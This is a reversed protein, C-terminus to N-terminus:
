IKAQKSPIEDVLDAIMPPEQFGAAFWLRKSNNPEQSNLTRNIPAPASFPIISLDRRQCSEAILTVLEFKSLQDKPYLHMTGPWFMSNEVIVRCIRGFHIAPIGNWFHNTYGNIQAGAPQFRVWDYLSTHGSNEPGIISVRINMFQESLVEGASKTKGYVDIADHPDTELYSGKSGNFVCDTAIQIVRTGSSAAFTQIEHPFTSNLKVARSVSNPNSEDIRAKVLGICNIIFDNPGFDLALEAFDNVEADFERIQIGRTSDLKSKTRATAIVDGDFESFEKLVASGLMGSAGLILVKTM